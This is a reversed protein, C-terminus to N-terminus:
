VGVVDVESDGDSDTSANDEEIVDGLLDMLLVNDAPVVPGASVSQVYAVRITVSQVSAFRFYGGVRLAYALGVDEFCRALNARAKPTSLSGEIADLMTAIGEGLTPRPPLWKPLAAKKDVAAEYRRRFLQLYDYMGNVRAARM